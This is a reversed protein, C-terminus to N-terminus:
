PAPHQKPDQPIFALDIFRGADYIEKQFGLALQIQQTEQVEELSVKPDNAWIPLERQVAADVVAPDVGLRKAYFAKYEDLHAKAYENSRFYARLFKRLQEPSSAIFKNSAVIVGTHFRPLYDYGAALVKGKGTAEALSAFPEHIITASVAGNEITALAAANVGNAVFTASEPSVGEKSLITRAYVDLGTGFAAAGVAKGKLAAVSAVGPAGVLYFPGVHRFLSSVITLPVGKGAAVIAGTTNWDAVDIDDSALGSVPDRTDIFELAIGEDKFFGKEIGLQVGLGTVGPFGAYRVKQLPAEVAPAAAAAPTAAPETRSCAALVAVVVGFAALRAWPAWRATARSSALTM